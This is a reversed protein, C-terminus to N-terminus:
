TERGGRGRGTAGRRRVAPAAERDDTSGAAADPPVSHPRYPRAATLESSRPPTPTGHVREAHAAYVQPAQERVASRLEPPLRVLAIEVVEPDGEYMLMGFGLPMREADAEAVGKRVIESWEAAPINREMLPVLHAEETGLHEQLAPVLQDLVRALAKGSDATPGRRWTALAADLEQSLRDVEDNQGEMVQVVPIVDDACRDLLLPWVFTDQGARHLRLDTNLGAIHGGVIEARERDGEATGRVLGPMLAFERWFMDHLMYLERGDFMAEAM